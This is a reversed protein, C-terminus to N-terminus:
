PEVGVASGSDKTKGIGLAAKEVLQSSPLCVKSHVKDVHTTHKMRNPSSDRSFRLAVRRCSPHIKIKPPPEFPFSYQHTLLTFEVAVFIILLQQFLIATPASV